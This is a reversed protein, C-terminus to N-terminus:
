FLIVKLLEEKEKYMQVTKQELDALDKEIKSLKIKRQKDVIDKKENEAYKEDMKKLHEKSELHKEYRIRSTLEKKCLDCVIKNKFERKKIITMIPGAQYALKEDKIM